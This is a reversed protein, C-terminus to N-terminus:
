VVFVFAISILERSAIIILLFSVSFPIGNNWIMALMLAIGNNWIMALM